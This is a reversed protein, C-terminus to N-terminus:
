VAHAAQLDEIHISVIEGEPRRLEVVASLTNVASRSVTVAVTTVIGDDILWALAEEAYRKADRITQSTLSRRRLLWLRSGIRGNALAPFSDGWRLPDEPIPHGPAWGLKNEEVSTEQWAAPNLNLKDALKEISDIM